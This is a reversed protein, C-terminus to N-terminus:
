DGIDILGAFHPYAVSGTGLTVQTKYSRSLGVVATLVDEVPLYWAEYWGKGTDGVESSQNADIEIEHLGGGDPILVASSREVTTVGDSIFMKVTGDQLSIASGNVDRLQFRISVTAGKYIPQQRPTRAKCASFTFDFALPDDVVVAM